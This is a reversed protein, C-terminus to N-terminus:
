LCKCLIKHAFEVVLLVCILSWQSLICCILVQVIIITGLLWLRLLRLVRCFVTSLFLRIISRGRCRAVVILLVIFGDLVSIVQKCEAPDIITKISQRVDNMRGDMWKDM